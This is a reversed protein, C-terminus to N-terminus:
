RSRMMLYSVCDAYGPVPTGLSTEKVGSGIEEAVDPTPVSEGLRFTAGEALNVEHKLVLDM